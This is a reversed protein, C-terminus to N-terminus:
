IRWTKGNVMYSISAQHMNYMKAISAQSIGRAALSRIKRVDRNKIKAQPHLEGIPRSVRNKRVMDQSNDKPTGLFLHKPNICSPIDCRHCIFMGPPIEGNLMEWLLRHALSPIGRVGTVGYGSRNRPGTWIWCSETKHAYIELRAALGKGHSLSRRNLRSFKRHIRREEKESIGIKELDSM